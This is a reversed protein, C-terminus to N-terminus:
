QQGRRSGLPGLQHRLRDGIIAHSESETWVGEREEKEADEAVEKWFEHVGADYKSENHDGSKHLAPFKQTMLERMKLSFDRLNNVQLVSAVTMTLGVTGTLVLLTATTFARGAYVYAVLKPNAAAAAPNELLEQLPMRTHGKTRQRITYLMTSFAFISAAGIIYKNYDMLDIGDTKPPSLVTPPTTTVLSQKDQSSKLIPAVAPMKRDEDRTSSSQVTSTPAVVATVPPPAVSDAALWPLTADAISHASGQSKVSPDARGSWGFWSWSPM